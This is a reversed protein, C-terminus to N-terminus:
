ETVTPPHNYSTQLFKLEEQPNKGSLTEAFSSCLRFFDRITQLRKLFFVEEMLQRQKLSDFFHLQTARAERLVDVKRWASPVELSSLQLYHPASIILTLAVTTHQSTVQLLGDIYLWVSMEREWSSDGRSTSTQLLRIFLMGVRCCIKGCRSVWLTYQVSMLQLGVNQQRCHYRM